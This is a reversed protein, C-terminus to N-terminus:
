ALSYHRIAGGLLPVSGGHPSSSRKHKRRGAFPRVVCQLSKARPGPNCLNLRRRCNSRYAPFTHPAKSAPQIQQEWRHLRNSRQGPRPMLHPNGLRRLCTRTSRGSDCQAREPYRCERPARRKKRLRFAPVDTRIKAHVVLWETSSLRQRFGPRHSACEATEIESPLLSRCTAQQLETPVDLSCPEIIVLRIDAEPPM